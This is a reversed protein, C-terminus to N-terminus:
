RIVEFMLNSFSKVRLRWQKCLGSQNVPRQLHEVSKISCISRLKESLVTTKENNNKYRTRSRCM